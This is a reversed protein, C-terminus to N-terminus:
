GHSQVGIPPNILKLPIDLIPWSEYTTKVASTNVRFVDETTHLNHTQQNPMCCSKFVDWFILPNSREYLLTSGIFWINRSKFWSVLCNPTGYLTMILNGEWPQNIEKGKCCKKPIYTKKTETRNIDHHSSVNKNAYLYIQMEVMTLLEGFTM